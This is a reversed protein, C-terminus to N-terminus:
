DGERPKKLKASPPMFPGLGNSYVKRLITSVIEEKSPEHPKQHSDALVDQLFAEQSQNATARIWDTDTPKVM